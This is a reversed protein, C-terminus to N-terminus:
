EGDSEKAPKQNPDEQIEVKDGQVLKEKGKTVVADGPLFLKSADETDATGKNLAELSDKLEIGPTIEIQHAKGDRVVIAHPLDGKYLIAIKPIMLAERSERTIIDARCFMGPRLKKGPDEVRARVLFSGTQM